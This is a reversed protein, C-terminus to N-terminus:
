SVSGRPRLCSVWFPYHNLMLSAAVLAGALGDGTVVDDIGPIEYVVDDVGCREDLGTVYVQGDVAGVLGARM